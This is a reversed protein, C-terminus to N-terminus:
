CPLQSLFGIISFHPGCCAKFFTAQDDGLIVPLGRLVLCRVETVATAQTQQMLDALVQGTVGRKAKFVEMLRPSHHDFAEYFEQKLSKGAVKSFELCVQHETFLAPWCQCIQAIAPKDEVVENRQLAFTLDMEQKILARNLTKKKMEDVMLQQADELSSDVQGDPYDPLYNVEGRRPKKIRKNPPEGCPSHKGYKGGNVTVDRHGRQCMKTRYNRM